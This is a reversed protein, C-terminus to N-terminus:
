KTPGGLGDYDMWNQLHKVDVRSWDIEGAHYRYFYEMSRQIRWFSGFLIEKKEYRLLSEKDELIEEELVNESPECSIFWVYVNCLNEKDEAKVDM